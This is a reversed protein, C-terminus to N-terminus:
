KTHHEEIQDCLKNWFTVFPADFEKNEQLNQLFVPNNMREGSQEVSGKGILNWSQMWNRFLVEFAPFRLTTSSKLEQVTTVNKDSKIWEGDILVYSLYDELSLKQSIEKLAVPTKTLTLILNTREKITLTGWSKPTEAQVRKIIKDLEPSPCKKYPFPKEKSDKLVIKKPHPEISLNGERERKTSTSTTNTSENLSVTTYPVNNLSYGDILQFTGVLNNKSVNMSMDMRIVELVYFTAIPKSGSKLFVELVKHYSVFIFFCSDLHSQINPILAQCSKLYSQHLGMANIPTKYSSVVNSPQQAHGVVKSTQLDKQVFGQLSPPKKLENLHFLKQSNLLAIHQKVQDLLLSKGLEKVNKLMNKLSILTTDDSVRVIRWEHSLTQLCLFTGESNPMQIFGKGHPLMCFSEANLHNPYQSRFLYCRGDTSAQLYERESDDLFWVDGTLNLSTKEIETFLFTTGKSQNNHVGKSMTSIASQNLQISYLFLSANNEFLFYHPV